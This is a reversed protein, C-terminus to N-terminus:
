IGISVSRGYPTGNLAPNPQFLAAVVVFGALTLRSATAMGGREKRRTDLAAAGDLIM